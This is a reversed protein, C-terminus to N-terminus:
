GFARHVIDEVVEVPIGTSRSIMEMDMSDLYELLVQRVFSEKVNEGIERQLNQVIFNREELLSQREMMLQKMREDLERVKEISFEFNKSKIESEELNFKSIHIFTPTYDIVVTSFGTPKYVKRPAGLSSPVIGMSLILNAKELIELQKNIAQQSIGLNKSLELGYSDEMLLRRLIARRTSNELISLLTDIDDM